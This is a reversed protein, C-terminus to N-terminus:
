CGRVLGLQEHDLSRAAISAPNHATDLIVDTVELSDRHTGSLPSPGPRIARRKRGSAVGSPEARRLHRHGCVCERGPAAGASWHGSPRIAAAHWPSRGSLGPRVALRRGPRPSDAASLNPVYEFDFDGGLALLPADHEVAAREIVRFPERQVVGTVVPVGRKIIGAKEGAIAALTRGLQRTHDFSISTIASVVPECINTSDLRGGLGVELVAVTWRATASIFWRPRRRSRSISSGRVTNEM